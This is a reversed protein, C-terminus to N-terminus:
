MGKMLGIIALLLGIGAILQTVIVATQSAKGDLTARTIQLSEVSVQLKEVATDLKDLREKVYEKLAITPELEYTM